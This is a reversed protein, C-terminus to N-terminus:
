ALTVITGGGGSGLGEAGGGLVENLLAHPIRGDTIFAGKVGLEVASTAYTVKPIMGGTITENEILGMVEDITLSPILEMEKNLVGAIDTLFLVRAAKLEGAIRGAAVDANVNYAIDKEEGIGTGIPSVVPTIGLSLLEELLVTNVTEVKGVFGLDYGDKNEQKTCQLLSDDRGSIGIARGGESCIASAIQKNVMGCLVMEAVEVVEKSSVRMGGEFKTEVKVKELMGSIQPGGGHVVVVRIGLNQLAAVDQCFGQALEPSTMANGGYKVVVTQGRLSAAADAIILATDALSDRLPALRPSAFPRPVVFASAQLAACALLSCTFGLRMTILTFSTIPVLLFTINNHRCAQVKASSFIARLSLDRAGRAGHKSLEIRFQPPWVSFKCGSFITRALFFLIQM